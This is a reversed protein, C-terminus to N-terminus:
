TDPSQRETKKEPESPVTFNMGFEKSLVELLQLRKNPNYWDMCNLHRLELPIECDDLRVPISYIRELPFQRQFDLIDRLEHQVFGIKNVRTKSLCIIVKNNASYIAKKIDREWNTGPRLDVEDIWPKFGADKLYHYIELAQLGDERAYNIFIRPEIM